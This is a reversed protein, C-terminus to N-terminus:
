IKGTDRNPAEMQVKGTRGTDRSPAEMQVKGTVRGTDRRPAEGRVKGHAESPLQSDFIVRVEAFRLQAGTRMLCKMGPKLREDGVFTGNTSGLDELLWHDGNQDGDNARVLRAHVGSLRPFPLSLELDSRRGIRIQDIADGFEVTREGAPMENPNRSAPPIVQLRLPM